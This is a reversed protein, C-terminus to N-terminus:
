QSSDYNDVSKADIDITASSPESGWAFDGKKDGKVVQGCNICQFPQDRLGTVASGCNPCTGAVVQRAIWWRFVLFGVIPTVSILLLLFLFSDFLFGIKGTLVLWIFGGWMLLQGNTSQLFRGTRLIADVVRGQVDPDSNGDGRGPGGRGFTARIDCARRRRRPVQLPVAAAGCRRVPPRSPVICVSGQAFCPITVCPLTSQYKAVFAM